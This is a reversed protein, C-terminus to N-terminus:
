SYIFIVLFFVSSGQFVSGINLIQFVDMQFLSYKTPRRFVCKKTRQRNQEKEKLGPTVDSHQINSQEMVPPVSLETKM